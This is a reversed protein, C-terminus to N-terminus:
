ALGPEPPNGGAPRVNSSATTQGDRLHCVLASCMGLLMFVLPHNDQEAFVSKIVLFNLLAIVAPVAFGMARGARWAKFLVKSVSVVMSAIMGFFLLFGVVGYELLADLYYTDITLQGSATFWQLADGGRGIGYGWPHSLIKPIGMSWQDFRATTSDQTEGGGWVMRRLRGVFISAALAVLFIVPYSLVLAPGFLDDRKSRWREAGLFLLFSLVTVGVGVFGLRSGSVFIAYLDLPVTVAAAMRVLIPYRPTIFYCVFPLAMALFEALGLSTSFTSQVRYETTGDRVRGALIYAVDPNNIKLLSPIHGVWLVHREHGEIAAIISVPVVLMWLVIAMREINRPNMFVYVSAFYIATWNFQAAILADISAYL